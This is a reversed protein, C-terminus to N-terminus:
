YSHLNVDLPLPKVNGAVDLSADLGKRYAAPLSAPKSSRSRMAMQERTEHRTRAGGIVHRTVIRSAAAGTPDRGSDLVSERAQTIQQLPGAGSAPCVRRGAGDQIIQATAKFLAEDRKAGLGKVNAQSLRPLAPEARGGM